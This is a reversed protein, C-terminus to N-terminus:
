TGCNFFFVGFLNWMRITVRLLVEPTKTLLMIFTSKAFEADANRDQFVDRNSHIRKTSTEWLSQKRM